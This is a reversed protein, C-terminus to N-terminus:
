RGVAVGHRASLHGVAKTVTSSDACKNIGHMHPGASTVGLFIGANAIRGDPPPSSVPLPDQPGWEPRAIVTDPM